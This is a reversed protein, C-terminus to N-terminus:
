RYPALKKVRATDGNSLVLNTRTPNAKHSLLHSKAAKVRLVKGTKTVKTRKLTAKHSKLKM